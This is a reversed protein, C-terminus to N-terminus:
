FSWLRRDETLVGVVAEILLVIGTEDEIMRSVSVICGVVGNERLVSLLLLLLLLVYGAPAIM